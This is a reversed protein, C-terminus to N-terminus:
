SLANLKAIINSNASVTQLDNLRIILDDYFYYCYRILKNLYYLM